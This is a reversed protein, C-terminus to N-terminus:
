DRIKMNGESDIEGKKIRTTSIPKGDESLIYPIKIIKMPKKNLEIRKENIKEANKITEASVIIADFDYKLTPGYITNIPEIKFDSSYEVKKIYEALNKKRESYSKVNKKKDLLEDTAVGIFVFGDKGTARFAKDILIKHGKHIIDFTGGLCVKM